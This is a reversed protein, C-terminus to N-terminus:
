KGYIMGQTELLTWTECFQNVTAKIYKPALPSQRYKKAVYVRWQSKKVKNIRCKYLQQLIFSAIEKNM